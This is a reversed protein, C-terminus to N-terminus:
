VLVVDLRLLNVSLDCQRTFLMLHQSLQTLVVLTRLYSHDPFQNSRGVEAINHSM